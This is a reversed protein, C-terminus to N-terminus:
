LETRACRCHGVGQPLFWLSITKLATRTCFLLLIEACRLKYICMYIYPSNVYICIYSQMNMYICIVVTLQILAHTSVEHQKGSLCTDTLGHVLGVSGSSGPANCQHLKFCIKLCANSYRACPTSFSPFINTNLLSFYFIYKHPKLHELWLYYDVM